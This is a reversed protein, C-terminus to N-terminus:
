AAARAFVDSPDGEEIVRGAQALIGFRAGLAAKSRVVSVCAPASDLAALDHFATSTRFVANPHNAVAQFVAPRGDLDLVASFEWESTSAGIMKPEPRMRQGFVAVLRDRLYEEIDAEEADAARSYIKDAVQWSSVAVECIARQIQDVPVEVYIERRNTLLGERTAIDSAIRPFSRQAGISEIERFAFGGDSVRAGGASPTLKVTVFSGSPFILPLNILSAEDWHRASVLDRVAADVAASLTNASIVASVMM